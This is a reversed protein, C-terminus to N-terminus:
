SIATERNFLLIGAITFGIGTGILVLIDMGIASWTTIGSTMALRMAHVAYTTPIYTSIPMDGGYTFVNGLFQLPLIILWTIGTSSSTKYFSALILAIGLCTFCFLVPILFLLFLNSDPHVYVGFALISIILMLIVQVCCVVLQSILGSLIIDRRAVPTTILRELTKNQKEEAFHTSLQSICVTVGAIIFGPALYDLATLEVSDVVQESKINASEIGNAKLTIENVVQSVISGVVGEVVEDAITTIEVKPEGKNAVANTFNSDIVIIADIREYKLDEYADDYDDYDNVITITEELEESEMVDVFIDSYQGGDENFIVVNYNQRDTGAGFAVGFIVIFLLPYGIIWALETKDRFMSKLNKVILHWLRPVNRVNKTETKRSSEESEM